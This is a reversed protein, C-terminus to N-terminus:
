ARLRRVLRARPRLTETLSRGAIALAVVPVIAFWAGIGPATARGLAVAAVVAAVGWALALARVGLLLAIAAAVELAALGVGSAASGPWSPAAVIAATITPPTGAIAAPALAALALLGHGLLIWGLAARRAAPDHPGPEGAERRLVHPFAMGLAVVAPIAVATLVLVSLAITVVFGVFGSARAAQDMAEPQTGLGARVLLGGVVGLAVAIMSAGLGFGTGLVMLAHLEPVLVYRETAPGLGFGLIRVGRCFLVAALVLAVLGALLALPPVAERAGSRPSKGARPAIVAAALPVIALTSAVATVETASWSPAVLAAVAGAHGLGVAAYTGLLARADRGAVLAQGARYGLLGRAITLAAALACGGATTRELLTPPADDSIAMSCVADVVAIVGACWALAGCALASAMMVVGLPALGGDHARGPRGLRVVPVSM